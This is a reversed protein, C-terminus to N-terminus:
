AQLELIAGNNVIFKNGSNGTAGNNGLVLVGANVTFGGGTFNWGGSGGNNQGLTLTGGGNKFYLNGSNQQNIRANINLSTGDAINFTFGEAAGSGAGIRVEAVATTGTGQIVHNGAAVVVDDGTQGNIIFFQATTANGVNITVPNTANANFQLTRVTLTGTNAIINLNGAGATNFIADDGTANPAAATGWNSATLWSNDTAGSWTGTTALAAHALGASVAAALLMSKRNGSKM